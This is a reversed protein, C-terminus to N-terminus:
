KSSIITCWEILVTYRPQISNKLVHVGVVLKENHHDLSMKNEMKNSYCKIGIFKQGFDIGKNINIPAIGHIKLHLYEENNNRIEQEYFKKMKFGEHQSWWANTKRWKGLELDM